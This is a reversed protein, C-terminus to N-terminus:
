RHVCDIYKHTTFISFTWYKIMWVALIPTPTKKCLRRPKTIQLVVSRSGVGHDQIKPFTSVLLLLSVVPRLNLFSRTRFVQLPPRKFWSFAIFGFITYCGKQNKNYCRTAFLLISLFTAVIAQFRLNVGLSHSKASITTCLQLIATSPLPVFANCSPASSNASSLECTDASQHWGVLAASQLPTLAPRTCNGISCGAFSRWWSGFTLSWDERLLNIHRIRHFSSSGRTTTLSIRVHSCM